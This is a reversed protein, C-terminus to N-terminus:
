SGWLMIEFEVLVLRAVIGGNVSSVCDSNVAGGSAFAKKGGM